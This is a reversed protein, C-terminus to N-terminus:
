EEGGSLLAAGARERKTSYTRPLPNQPPDNQRNDQLALPKRIRRKPKPTTPAEIDSMSSLISGKYGRWPVVQLTADDDEMEYDVAGVQGNLADLAIGVMRQNAELQSIKTDREEVATELTAIRADIDGVHLVTALTNVTEEDTLLMSLVRGVIADVVQGAREGDDEAELEEEELEDLEEDEMLAEPKNFLERKQEELKALIRTGTVAPVNVSSMEKGEPKTFIIQALQENDDADTYRQGRFHPCRFYDLHCISCLMRDHHWSISFRDIQGDAFSKMGASSTIRIHQKFEGNDNRSRMIIGDRSSIHRQDHDRLFPKNKFTKAFKNLDKDLFLFFNRNPKDPRQVFAVADFEINEVDGSEALKRLESLKFKKEDILKGNVHINRLEALVPHSWFTDPVETSNKSSDGFRDRQRELFRVARQRQAPTTGNPFGQNLRGIAATVGRFVVRLQGGIMDAFPMKYSSQVQPDGIRFMFGRMARSVNINDDDDRVADLMRRRAGSGDWSRSRPALPLNSAALTDISEFVLSNEVLSGPLIDKIEPISELLSEHDRYFIGSDFVGHQIKGSKHKVVGGNTFDIPM